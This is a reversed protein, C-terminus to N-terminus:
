RSARKKYALFGDRYKQIYKDRSTKPDEARPSFTTQGTWKDEDKDFVTLCHSGNEAEYIKIYRRKLIYKGAQTKAWIMWIEDPDKISAALLKMYKKRKDKNLKYKGSKKDIFLGEDIVLPEKVVDTYVVSKGIDAGFESLFARAYEEESLGEPLVSNEPMPSAEPLPPLEAARNQFTQPPNGDPEPTFARYRAKGVNYDFGPAIGEPIQEIKGTRKNEWETYRIQPSKSPVFGRRNLDNDSYQIVSCRCKWGNPPYHTAWFPDDYRLILDHWQRHQARTREDLVCVYRLYPADKANEEIAAWEGAAYATRINTDYIIGLRRPTGLTVKETLGTKPDPMERKGWWGKKQLVPILDKKFQDFTTGNELADQLAARIDQLIDIQMAKAVTFAVAHEEKWVDRWDFGFKYRKKQFFRIAEAPPLPSFDSKVM